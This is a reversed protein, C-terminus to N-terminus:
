VPIAALDRAFKRAYGVNALMARVACPSDLFAGPVIMGGGVRICVSAEHLRKVHRRVTEYPLGLSQAIRCVSIPRRAEDPPTEDVGAYRGGEGHRTDLHATNASIITQAVIGPRVDGYTDTLLQLARLVYESSLRAVLRAIGTGDEAAAVTLSPPVSAILSAAHLDHMFKRVYGVNALVAQLNQPREITTRPVIV